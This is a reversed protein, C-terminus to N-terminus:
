LLDILISLLVLVTIVILMYFKIKECIEKSFNTDKLEIASIENISCLLFLFLLIGELIATTASRPTSFLLIAYGLISASFALITCQFDKAKNLYNKIEKM